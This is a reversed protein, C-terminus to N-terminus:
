RFLAFNIPGVAPTATSGSNNVLTMSITGASSVSASVIPFGGNSSSANANQSTVVVNDGAKANSVACTVTESHGTALSAQGAVPCSGYDLNHILDNDSGIVIGNYYWTPYNSVTADGLNSSKHTVGVVVLVIIALGVIGAIVKQLTTM